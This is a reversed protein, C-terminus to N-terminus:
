LLAIITLTIFNYVTNHPMCVKSIASLVNYSTKM